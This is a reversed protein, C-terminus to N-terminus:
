LKMSVPFKMTFRVNEHFQLLQKLWKRLNYFQFFVFPSIVVFLLFLTRQRVRICPCKLRDLSALPHCQYYEVVDLVSSFQLASDVYVQGNTEYIKFHKTKNKAKVILFSWTYHVRCGSTYLYRLVIFVINYSSDSGSLSRLFLVSRLDRPRRQWVRQNAGSLIRRSQGTVHSSELGWCPEDKWLVM